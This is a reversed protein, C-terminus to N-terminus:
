FSKNDLFVDSLQLQNKLAISYCLDKRNYTLRAYIKSPRHKGDLRMTWLHGLSGVNEMILAYHVMFHHKPKLTFGYLEIYLTHHESVLQKMDRIDSNM